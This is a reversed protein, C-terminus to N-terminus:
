KNAYKRLDPKRTERFANSGEKSEDTDYCLKLAQMAFASVGRIMQQLLAQRARDRCPENNLQLDNPIM